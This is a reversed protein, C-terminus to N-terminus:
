RNEIFAKWQPEETELAVFITDLGNNLMKCHLIEIHLGLIYWTPYSDVIVRPVKM